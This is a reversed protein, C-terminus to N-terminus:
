QKGKIKNYIFYYGFQNRCCSNGARIGFRICKIALMLNAFMVTNRPCALKGSNIIFGM